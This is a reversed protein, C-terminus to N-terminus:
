KFYSVNSFISRKFKKTTKPNYFTEDLKRTSSASRVPSTDPVLTTPPHPVKFIELETNLIEVFELDPELIVNSSKSDNSERSEISVTDSDTTLDNDVNNM